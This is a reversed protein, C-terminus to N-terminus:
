GKPEAEAVIEGDIVLRHRYQLCFRPLDAILAERTITESLEGEGRRSWLGHRHVQIEFTM